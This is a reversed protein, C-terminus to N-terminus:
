ASKKYLSTQTLSHLWALPPWQVSRACRAFSAAPAIACHRFLRRRSHLSRRFAWITCNLIVFDLKIEPPKKSCKAGCFDPKAGKALREDDEDSREQPRRSRRWELGQRQLECALQPAVLLGQRM